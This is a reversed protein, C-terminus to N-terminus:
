ALSRVIRDVEDHLDSVSGLNDITYNVPLMIGAESKHQGAVGELGTGRIVRIIVGGFARIENVENDFRVDPVVVHDTDRFVSYSLRWRKVWFDEGFTEKYADGVYQYMQRPSLDWYPIVVEKLDDQLQAQILAFTQQVALKLPDAFAIRTFEYRTWLHKAITDKGSRALGTIGILKM